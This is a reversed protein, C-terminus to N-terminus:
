FETVTFATGENCVRLRKTSRAVYFVGTNISLNTVKWPPRFCGYIIRNGILEIFCGEPVALSIDVCSGEEILSNISTKLLMASRICAIEAQDEKVTSLFMLMVVVIILFSFSLFIYHITRM